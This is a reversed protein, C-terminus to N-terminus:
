KFSRLKKTIKHDKKLDHRSMIANRVEKYGFRNDEDHGCGLGLRGEEVYSRVLEERPARGKNYGVISGRRKDVM